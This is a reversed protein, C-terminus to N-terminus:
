IYVVYIPTKYQWHEPVALETLAHHIYTQANEGRELIKQADELHFEYTCYIGTHAGHMVIHEPLFEVKTVNRIRFQTFYPTRQVLWYRRPFSFSYRALFVRDRFHLNESSKLYLTADHQESYAINDASAVVVSDELVTCHNQQYIFGICGPSTDCIKSCSDDHFSKGLSQGQTIVSIELEAENVIGVAFYNKDHYENDCTPGYFPASCACAGDSWYAHKHAECAAKSTLERANRALQFDTIPRNASHAAGVNSQISPAPVTRTLPPPPPKLKASNSALILLLVVIVAIIVIFVITVTIFAADFTEKRVNVSLEPTPGVGVYAHIDDPSPHEGDPM